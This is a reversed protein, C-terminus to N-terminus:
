VLEARMQREVKMDEKSRNRFSTEDQKTFRWYKRTPVLSTNPVRSDTGTTQDRATWSWPRWDWHSLERETYISESETPKREEASQGGRKWHVVAVWSTATLISLM